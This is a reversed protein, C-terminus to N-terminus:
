LVYFFLFLVSVVLYYHLHEEKKRLVYEFVQLPPAINSFFHRWAFGVIYNNKNNIQMRSKKQYFYIVNQHANQLNRNIFIINVKCFTFTLSISLWKVKTHIIVFLM